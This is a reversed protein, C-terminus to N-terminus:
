TSLCEAILSIRNELLHSTFDKGGRKQDGRTQFVESHDNFGFGFMRDPPGGVTRCSDMFEKMEEFTFLLTCDRYWNKNVSKTQNVVMPYLGFLLIFDAEKPVDFRNFWTEFLFRKTSERKPPKSLYTRSAKIQITATRSKGNPLRKILALDFGKEQRSAPVLVSFGESKPLLKQLRDALFAEPWQLTFIPDM